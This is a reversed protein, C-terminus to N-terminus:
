YDFYAAPSLDAVRLTDTVPEVLHASGSSSRSFHFESCFSAYM